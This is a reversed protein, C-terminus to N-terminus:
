DEMKNFFIGASELIDPRVVNWYKPILSNSQTVNKLHHLHSRLQSMACWFGANGGSGKTPISYLVDHYLFLDWMSDKKVVLLGQTIVKQYFESVKEYDEMRNM